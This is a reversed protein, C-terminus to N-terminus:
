LIQIKNLQKKNWYLLFLIMKRKNLKNQIKKAETLRWLDEPLWSLWYIIRLRQNRQEVRLSDQLLIQRHFILLLIAKRIMLAKLKTLISKAKRMQNITNKAAKHNSKTNQSIKVMWTKLSIVVPLLITYKMSQICTSGCILWIQCPPLLMLWWM